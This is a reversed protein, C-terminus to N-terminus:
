FIKKGKSYFLYITFKCKYKQGIKPRSGSWIDSM